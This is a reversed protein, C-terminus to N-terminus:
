GKGSQQGQGLCCRSGQSEHRKATVPRTKTCSLGLKSSVTCKQGESATKSAAAQAHPQVPGGRPLAENSAEEAQGPAQAAASGEGQRCTTRRLVWRLFDPM